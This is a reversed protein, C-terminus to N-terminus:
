ITTTTTTKTTTKRGFICTEEIVHNNGAVPSLVVMAIALTLAETHLERHFTFLFGVGFFHLLIWEEIEPCVSLWGAALTHVPLKFEPLWKKAAAECGFIRGAPEVMTERFMYCLLIRM